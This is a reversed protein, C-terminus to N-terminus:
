YLHFSNQLKKLLKLDNKAWFEFDEIANRELILKTM